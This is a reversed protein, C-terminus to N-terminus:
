NRLWRRIIKISNQWKARIMYNLKERMMPSIKSQQESIIKEATRIISTEPKITYELSKRDKFILKKMSM